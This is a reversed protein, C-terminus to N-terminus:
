KTSNENSSVQHWLIMEEQCNDDELGLELWLKDPVFRFVGM